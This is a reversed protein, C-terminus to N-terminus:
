IVVISNIHFPIAKSPPTLPLGKTPIPIARFVSMIYYLFLDLLSGHLCSNTQASQFVQQFYALTYSQSLGLWLSAAPSTSLKKSADRKPLILSPKWSTHSKGDATYSVGFCLMVPPSPSSLLKRERPTAPPLNHTTARTCDVHFKSLTRCNCTTCCLCMLRSRPLSQAAGDLFNLVKYGSHVYWLGGSIEPYGVAWGLGYMGPAAPQWSIGPGLIHRRQGQQLFDPCM